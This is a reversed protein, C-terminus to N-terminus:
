RDPEPASDRLEAAAKWVTRTAYDWINHKEGERYRAIAASVAEASEGRRWDVSVIEPIILDGFSPL